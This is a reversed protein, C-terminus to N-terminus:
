RGEEYREEVVLLWLSISHMARVLADDREGFSVRALFAMCFRGSVAMLGLRVWSPELFVLFLLLLLILGVRRWATVVLRAFMGRGRELREHRGDGGRDFGRAGCPLRVV